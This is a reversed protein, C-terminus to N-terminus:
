GRPVTVSLYYGRDGPALVRVAYAGALTPQFAPLVVSGTRSTRVAGLAYYRGNVRIQARMSSSQPLGTLRVRVVQGAASSMARATAASRTLPKRFTRVPTRAVRAAPPRVVAGTPPGVFTVAPVIVAAPGGDEGADQATTGSNTRYEFAAPVSGDQLWVRLEQWGETGPPTIIEITADNIFRFGPATVGGVSVSTAGTFGWGLVLVRTGGAVPGFAPRVEVVQWLSGGGGGGTSPPSSGGGGSAPPTPAAVPTIDVRPTSAPGPGAVNAALADVYYNTGNVLGGITCTLATPPSPQCSGVISGDSPATWARATYSSVAAGGTSAPPGWAVTASASGPTATLSLPASPAAAPTRAIRPASAPGPGISNTAVVDVHYTTGNALGTITCSLATAPSPTCTGLTTGLAAASWAAATYSTIPSSGSSVPAQWTVLLSRDAPAVTITRPQSPVGSGVPQTAVRPSSPASPGIVNAAIVDVYYTSGNTLGTITCTLGTAPTPTCARSGFSGGIAADWARASFSTVASGGNSLPALWTVTTSQNGATASTGTPPAPVTAVVGPSAFLLRDPDGGAPAFAIPTALTALATWVQGPTYGPNEDLIRAAAGAVHPAAMSTGSAIATAANSTIWASTIGVGPAYLDTCGGFNSFSAAVDAIVGSGTAKDDGAANVTIVSSVRAPSVQCADVADNGSAAVVTVGDSILANVATDIADSAAARFSMNAVAPVGAAHNAVTWNIGAIIADFTTSGSCGFVRVPVLTAQKAVGYTTGGVTGAVHTGHGNCDETGGGDAIGAYGAALRGTFEVHTSRIGTDIVYATVGSGTSDSPYQYTGDVPLTPQDIRDLGWPASPQVQTDALTVIGNPEAFAVGPTRALREAIREATSPDVAEGLRVTRMGFGIPVGPELEAGTVASDGTAVGPAETPPVGPEYAVILETIPQGAAVDAPFSPRPDGSAAPVNSGLAILAGVVAILVGRTAAMVRSSGSGNGSM